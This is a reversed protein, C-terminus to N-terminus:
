HPEIVVDKWFWRNIPSTPLRTVWPKVLWPIRVYLVPMLPAAEVLIRDARRYLKLRGKQDTLRRAEEVLRGYETDQWGSHRLPSSTRLFSDPDPYDAVWGLAFMQATERELRDLFPAWEMAEFTVQVGLVDQWEGQLYENFPDIGRMTLLLMSPFGRGAPYGAEALLRRAQDPDHPLAIGPSHGPMGPPVFGGTAPFHNGRLVVDALRERDIAMVFARRVRSDDFPPRRVDFGVSITSLQPVSVYDGPHRRRARDLEAPPLYWTELTDIEGRAYREVQTSWAKRVCIEVQRVNGTFRGHYAPNRSLVISQGPEWAELRFPGCTLINDREVWAEGHAALAHRPVPYAVSHTLLQLFYGTPAELTVHLTAADLARVGVSERPEQGQHFARAGAVDHLLSATPSATAPDLARKWGVEFDGATVAVGDSWRVDDRLHFVYRQGGELVDWSHAVGPVVDMEPTLEVLGSFLQDILMHSNSDNAISPDLTPPEQGDVRLAHPAPPLAVAKAAPAARQWLAFAEEYAQRSEAYDFATHHALGLKMLARAARQDDGLEKLLALAREYARTAEQHAYLSRARDGAELLYAIAEESRGALELHDAILGTYEVAREGGQEIIWDAVLGHYVRRLRKLLSEYTVERLVNHKFVYEQAGAFATTERRFVMERGRLESLTDLVEDQQVGEAASESIRVVAQDWFKRGVVSAQQLITRDEFPLRDLRAQLVGTLTPPVRVESLRAPEVRWREHGKVIVGDEVLMKVLEEVFFPNGEAGAVVLESLTDPVDEVKRLIEGLLRRTNRKTLPELALRRHFAQGEGWHPRREFLAPRAACAIMLPQDSLALALHNLVDLSSDDAWHLDELLVLVPNESALAEFYGVLYALARDRIERPDDHAGEAHASEGLEFGVLHGIFGAAGREEEGAGLARGVGRELKQQVVAVSDSDEIQFRFAFLSRLLSYPLSHLEQLARGKFYYFTEPRLEAWNDFEHLLRSKGVGAEGVVTVMQLDGDEVATHFAEQLRTLEAQRGIMRTEIGEVGRTGKRFARPKARQLLYTRVSERKGKVQLPEQAQVDFVGRVHRYTDHTILISGPPANQEVRAALNIADGMATYEVRLDSGVEGVVVLGTNIGVRVNFGQIGRERELQEAYARAGAVIELAARCAREPDDEHAIPAGFFALVADGMLRALTGEHRYIPEILVDFAGDMIEMVDEPDLDEAMTTSGKVDSFLITVM